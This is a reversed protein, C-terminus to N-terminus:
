REACSPADTTTSGDLSLYFDRRAYTTELNPKASTEVPIPAFWIWKAASNPIVNGWPSDGVSAVETAFIWTSADFGLETWGSTDTQSVRWSSDTVLLPATGSTVDITLEGIIGRDNGAQSSTNSGAIAVVNKRGPHLFLSVDLTVASGWNNTSGVSVGNVFV